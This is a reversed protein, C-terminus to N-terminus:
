QSAIRSEVVHQGESLLHAGLAVIREGESLGSVRATEDSLQRVQVARRAVTSAADVVWVSTTKGDDYLAGLPVEWTTATEDKPVWVTVTAGLPAQSAEGACALVCLLSLELTICGPDLLGGPDDAPV